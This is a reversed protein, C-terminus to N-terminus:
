QGGPGRLELGLFRCPIGIGLEMLKGETGIGLCGKRESERGEWILVGVGEEV